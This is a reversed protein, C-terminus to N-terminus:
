QAGVGWERTRGAREAHLSLEYGRMSDMAHVWETLVQQLGEM